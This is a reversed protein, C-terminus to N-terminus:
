MCLCTQAESFLWASCNYACCAFLKNIASTLESASHLKSIFTHNSLAKYFKCYVIVCHNVWMKLVEKSLVNYPEIYNLKEPHIM